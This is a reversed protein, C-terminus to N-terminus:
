NKIMKDMQKKIGEGYPPRFMSLVKDNKIQRYVSKRHSFEYFGDIGHYVGMGSPGIGGFPLDEQACHFICDNITAGGSVTSSLVHAEEVKDEGFYYLALPRNGENVFNIAQQISTYTKIPLLPGFIEDQMVLMDDTPNLILTPPMKFHPQQKFNEDKPNIEIITAGKVKADDIYGRLRDYHRQSILSAYDDNDRLGDYLRAVSIKAQNVFNGVNGEPLYVYDPALCIQGANLTKAAMIRHTAVEFNASSGVLTPSKGGLELTLPVLNEAAARMVHKAISTAGTFVLHDFPLKSFEAGVEPGGTFIAVELPDFYKAILQEILTSTKPTFESPKLIAQNGAALIGALPMFLLSIPFNWPSVVGVSGKPGIQITSKAGMLGLPFAAKRREPKMWKDIHKQAHKLADISSLIDTFDSQDQSRNGFDENIAQTLESRNEVLLNIARTLRDKRLNIDPAGNEIFANKQLILTNMMDQM